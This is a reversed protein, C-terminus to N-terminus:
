PNAVAAELGPAALQRELARYDTKGTGLVPIADVEVVRRVNHLASLGGARIQENVTARDAASTVFLVLEPHEEGGAAVVALTPGAQDDPAPFHPLLVSEVAPLSVMEGGLKVFRKLRGQFTLVGDEAETVLDGTRYWSKGAHEVFPSSGAHQLYGGFVSPGRVLLVGRQGRVVPESTDVSVIAYELSPLVKGITFPRPAREDNLAVIPSCETIGYGELVVADPCRERLGSYVREPCAEAGTVALRITALQERTGARVIGGVFTPTGILCTARYTEVLRALMGADTPDPHYAVRVGACLALGICVTLGFSHFPPLMGLIVDDERITLVRAGDRLNALLNEHTLPVAKPLSESGSTFLVVAADRPKIKRLAGRGTRSRLWAKAKDAKSVAAVLDELFVFREALAGLEVGREALREVFRKSTIVKRVDLADLGHQMAREGVTFNVMVPTKEGFLAALYTMAGAVSAPLMLGVYDGPLARITDKLVFVATVVDGVTRVGSSQDAFLPRELGRDAVDLFAETLTAVEPRVSVRATGAARFWRKAPPEVRRPLLSVAEGCAALLVDAVTELTTASSIQHGFQQEIWVLLEARALSDLGLDRSLDDTDKLSRRGTRELLHETVLQRTGVPVRSTDSSRADYTPEPRVVPGGREWVSHPVYTNPPAEANYFREIYANLEDRSSRPLDEPEFLEIKVSRRPTLLVGSAVIGGVGRRVARAVDPETGNSWAFSSGWLGTQRVLVVRLGPVAEMLSLAASNGRLDEYRTRYIHGSPYLVVNRGARLYDALDGLAREVEGRAAAGFEKVDPLPRVGYKRAVWRLVPRDIQQSDALFIPHLPRLLHTALILPDVLAPHNPLLLIKETGKAVIAELGVLKVDYRLGLLDKGLFSLVADM